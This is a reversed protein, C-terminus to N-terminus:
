CYCGGEANEASASDVSITAPKHGLSEMLVPNEIVKKILEEFAQQVGISQKASTEIYLM